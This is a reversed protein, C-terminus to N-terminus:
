ENLLLRCIDVEIDFDDGDMFLLLDEGDHMQVLGRDSSFWGSGLKQSSSKQFVKVLRPEEAGQVGLPKLWRASRGPNILGKGGVILRAVTSHRRTFPTNTRGLM